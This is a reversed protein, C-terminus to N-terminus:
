RCVAGRHWMPPTEDHMATRIAPPQWTRAGFNSALDANAAMWSCPTVQKMVTGAIM